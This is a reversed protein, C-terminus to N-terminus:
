RRFPAFSLLVCLGQASLREFENSFRKRGACDSDKGLHFKSTIRNLILTSLKSSCRECSILASHRGPFRSEVVIETALLKLWTAVHMLSNCSKPTQRKGSSLARWTASKSSYKSVRNLWGMLWIGFAYYFTIRQMNQENISRLCGFIVIQIPLSSTSLLKSQLKYKICFIKAAKETHQPLFLEQPPNGLSLPEKQCIQKSSLFLKSCKGDEVNEESRRAFSKEDM